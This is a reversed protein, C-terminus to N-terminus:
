ARCVLQQGPIAVRDRTRPLGGMESKEDEAPALHAEAMEQPVAHRIMLDRYCELMSEAMHEPTLELAISRARFAMERRLDVDLIVRQLAAGFTKRDNAPAFLATDGWTERLAPVDGLVLACGSLAAQLVSHGFPEYRTPLAFVAAEAMKRAIEAPKPSEIVQLHSFAPPRGEMGKRKDAFLVPCPLTEAVADLMEFNQAEEGTSGMSLVYERKGSPQFRETACGCPIKRFESFCAASPFRLLRPIPAYLRTLSDFTARTSAVVLNAGRLGAAVEAHYRSWSRPSQGDHVAQWWSLVCGHASILVPASWPLSGQCYHNLHVVHPDFQEELELLWDGAQTVDRWPDAMWELSGTRECLGVHSLSAAEARQEESIEPGMVALLIEIGSTRLARTLEMVYTWVGETGDATMLVRSPSVGDSSPPFANM